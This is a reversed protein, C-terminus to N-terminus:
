AKRDVREVIAKARRAQRRVISSLQRTFGVGARGPAPRMEALSVPETMVM